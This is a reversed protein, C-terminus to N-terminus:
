GQGNAPASGAGNCGSAVIRSGPLDGTAASEADAQTGGEGPSFATGDYALAGCDTFVVARRCDSGCRAWNGFYAAAAYTPKDYWIQWKGGPGTAIGGWQDAAHATPTVALTLAAVAAAGAACIAARTRFSTMIMTNREEPRNRGNGFNTPTSTPHCPGGVLHGVTPPLGFRPLFTLEQLGM